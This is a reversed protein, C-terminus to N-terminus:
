YKYLRCALIMFKYQVKHASCLSDKFPWKKFTKLREDELMYSVQAPVMM